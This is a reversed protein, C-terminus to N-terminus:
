RKKAAPTDRQTGRRPPPTRSPKVPSHLVDPGSPPVTDVRLLRRATRYLELADVSQGPSRALAREVVNEAVAPEVCDEQVLADAVQRAILKTPAAMPVCGLM